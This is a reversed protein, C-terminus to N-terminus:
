RVAAAAGHIGHPLPLHARRPRRRVNWDSRSPANKMQGDKDDPSDLPTDTQECSGRHLATVHGTDICCSKARLPMEGETVAQPTIRHSSSLLLTPASAHRQGDRTRIPESAVFCLGLAFSSCTDTKSPIAIEVCIGDKMRGIFGSASRSLVPLRLADAGPASQHEEDDGIEM